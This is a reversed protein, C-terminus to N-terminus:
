NGKKFLYYLKEAIGKKEFNPHIFLAWVNNERQDVISFGVIKNEIECVWGKGRQLIFEECDKDTVLNPDSLTNENVSNRVVQIQPIDELIAERAELVTMKQYKLPAEEGM